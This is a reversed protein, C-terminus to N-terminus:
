SASTSTRGLKDTGTKGYAKTLAQEFAGMATEVDGYTNRTSIFTVRNGPGYVTEMALWIDGKNQRNAAVMKANIADFEARKESKVQAIYVDLYDGLAQQAQAAALAGLLMVVLMAGLAKRPMVAEKTPRSSGPVPVSCGSPLATLHSSVASDEPVIIGACCPVYMM